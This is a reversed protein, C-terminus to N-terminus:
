NGGLPDTVTWDGTHTIITPLDMTIGYEHQPSNIYWVQRFATNNIKKFNGKMCSSDYEYEQPEDTLLMALNWEGM